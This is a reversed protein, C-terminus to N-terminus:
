KLVVMKKTSTFEGAKLRAFYIGSAVPTGDSSRSDWDVTHRGAELARDLLTTVKQGLVNYIELKVETPYPLSFSFTTMPNFPNPYNQDFQFDVPIQYPSYDDGERYRMYKGKAEVMLFRMKNEPLPEARFTLEIQEGPKLTVRSQSSAKLSATVSGDKNHGADLLSLPKIDAELRTFPVLPLHDIDMKRAWAVKVQLRGDHYYGSMDIFQGARNMRPFLEAVLKYEGSEDLVYVSYINSINEMTTVRTLDRKDPVDDFVLGTGPDVPEDGCGSKPVEKNAQYTLEIYGPGVATFIRGDDEVLLDTIDEGKDTVASVITESSITLMVVELKDTVKVPNDTNPIDIAHLKIEDFFTIENEDERILFQYYEQEQIYPNSIPYFDTKDTFNKNLNESQPLLNNIFEYKDGNWIYLTPCAVCTTCPTACYNPYVKAFVRLSDSFFGASDPRTTIKLDGILVSPYPYYPRGIKFYVTDQSTFLTEAQLYRFTDEAFGRLGTWYSYIDCQDAYAWYLDTKVKAAWWKDELYHVCSNSIVGRDIDIFDVALIHVNEPCTDVFRDIMLTDEFTYNTSGSYISKVNINFIYTATDPVSEPIQYSYYNLGPMNLSITDCAVLTKQGNNAYYVKRTNVSVGTQHWECRVYDYWNETPKPVYRSGHSLIDCGDIFRRVGTEDTFHETVFVDGCAAVMPKPRNGYGNFEWGRAINISNPYFLQKTGKGIEGYVAILEALNPKLKYIKGNVHDLVYVYGFADVDISTLYCNDPFLGEPTTYFSNSEYTYKFVVRKNGADAIYLGRMPEHTRIDRAYCLSTPYLLQNNGSGKSFMTKKYTAYTSHHDYLKVISNEYDLVAIEVLDDNPNETLPIRAADVDRVTNFNDQISYKFTLADSYDLYYVQARNNYADAVIWCWDVFAIASPNSFNENGNGYSGYDTIWHTRESAIIRNWCPDTVFLYDRCYEPVPDTYVIGIADKTCGFINGEFEQQSIVKTFRTSGGYLLKPILLNDSQYDLVSLAFTSNRSDKHNIAPLLEKMSVEVLENVENLVQGINYIKWKQGQNDFKLLVKKQATFENIDYYVTVEAQIIDGLDIIKGLEFYINRYPFSESHSNKMSETPSIRYVKEAFTEKLEEPVLSALTKLNFEDPKNLAEQLVNLMINVRDQDSFKIISAAYSSDAISNNPIGLSGFLVLSFITVLQMKIAQIM